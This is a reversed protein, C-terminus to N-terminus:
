FVLGPVLSPAELPDFVGSLKVEGWLVGLSPAQGCGGLTHALSTQSPVLSKLTQRARAVNVNKSM